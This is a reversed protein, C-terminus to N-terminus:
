TRHSPDPPEPRTARGNRKRSPWRPRAAVGTGAPGPHRGALMRQPRCDKGPAASSAALPLWNAQNVRPLALYRCPSARIGRLSRYKSATPNIAAASPHAPHCPVGALGAVSTLLTSTKAVASMRAAKGHSTALRNPLIREPKSGRITRKAPYRTTTASTSALASASRTSYASDALRVLRPPRQTPSIM